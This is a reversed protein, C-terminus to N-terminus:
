LVERYCGLFVFKDSANELESLLNLVGPKDIHAEFDFYFAFEFVSNTLPRSELKTLSLGLAAFKNLIRNLSGAEHPLNVTLSIKDSAEFIQLKGSIVIFRTFNNDIDQVGSKIVTLGYIGACEKSSICATDGRGDESVAKAAVATNAVINVNVNLGKLFVACQNVAQEHTYIEKIDKLRTGPKALLQHQVRLKISRVIYFKHNRMRDYVENISGVSSNEIPLVGYQCLGKEVAGFVADFDKFYLINSIAFLKEAALGSYAGAIGQCAVTASSPFPKLGDHLIARVKDKVSSKIDILGSQYAKSTEFITDFLQKAYLKIGDDLKETVRNIISKERLSNEVPLNNDRKKIAIERTVAMRAAYLRVIEDDIEDIQRRLKELEM